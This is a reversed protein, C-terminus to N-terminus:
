SIEGRNSNQRDPRSILFAPIAAFIVLLLAYPAAESFRFINASSWIETALTEFGTPRLMLTAPLEKMASLFILLAGSLIGPLALPLTVRFFTERKNKGLTSSIEELNKPVRSISSSIFGVSRALFLISYAIALLILTQYIFSFQAGFSVLALGMVIGPLAHVLFVGWEAFKGLRSGTLSLLALPISIAIALVAGIASVVITSSTVNFLNSLDLARERTVFRQILLSMPLLLAVLIYAVILTSALIRVRRQTYKKGAKTISSSTITHYSENRWLNERFIVLASLILLIIALVAASSRDYSGQYTNQIARTLTDVGLLSVAGFDSLVYLTVLLSGALITNRIQPFIVRTFLRLPNDGLTQAVELQALDIRSFASFTALIIYPTTALTLVILASFYGRPLAELSLWCYAYIYSPIAIPIMVLARFLNNRPIKVNHLTWALTLGLVTAFLSVLTALSITTFIIEATKARFILLTLTEVDSRKALRFLYFIPLAVFALAVVGALLLLTSPRNDRNSERLNRPLKENTDLM